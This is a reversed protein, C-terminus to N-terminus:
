GSALVHQARQQFERTRLLGLETPTESRRAVANAYVATLDRDLIVAFVDLGDLIATATEPLGHLKPLEALPLM